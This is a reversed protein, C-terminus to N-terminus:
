SSEETQTDATAKQVQWENVFEPDHKQLLELCKTEVEPIEDTLGNTLIDKVGQPENFRHFHEALNKLAQGEDSGVNLYPIATKLLSVSDETNLEGSVRALSFVTSALLVSKLKQDETSLLRDLIKKLGEYVEQAHIYGLFNVLSPLRYEAFWGDEWDLDSGVVSNLLELAPSVM